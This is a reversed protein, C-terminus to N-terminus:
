DFYYTLADEILSISHCDHVQIKPKGTYPINGPTSPVSTFVTQLDLLLLIKAM